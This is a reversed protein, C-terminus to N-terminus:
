LSLGVSHMSSLLASKASKVKPVAKADGYKLYAVHLVTEVLLFERPCVCV